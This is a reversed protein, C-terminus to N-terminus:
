FSTLGPAETILATAGVTSIDSVTALVAGTSDNLVAVRSGAILIIQNRTTNINQSVPRATLYLADGSVSDPKFKILKVTGTEYDITGAARDIYIREFSNATKNYYIRVTGFGDDDLFATFGDKTFSSSTLYGFLNSDSGATVAQDGVGLQLLYTNFNITYDNKSTTSPNITKQLDIIARSGTISDDADDLHSLFKSLRFKSDFKGLYTSEFTVVRAAVAAAIEAATKTTEEPIYRVEVYPLVYLYAPDAMEVDISQVNYKRIASKIANKRNTSLLTGLLPKAAVYVKGYIPPDNDEGGWVSIAELDPNDRLIIRKYDDATVARNQTEYLRPANFRISEISEIATGGAARSVTRLSFLTEGGITNVASFSNAGNPRTGSCVRYSVEVTSNLAPKFGLVGDGFGVKYRTERDAEVFFYKSSSNASTLDTAQTYTVTNGSTTVTVAISEVDTNDNPLVFSTNATTFAFRHTLPTGEVINIYGFFRNSSNSSIVYSKPTVFTYSVGNVTSIFETNKAVTISRFTANAVASTFTVAINATAGSASEPTYGLAKARSAVSEYLQATDLFAENAAMNAYFANYYTNYALLDLLTGIASDDFDFDAFDSKTSLFNRLNTRITTFDLGTITLNAM